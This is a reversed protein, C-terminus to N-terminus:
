MKLEKDDKLICTISEVNIIFYYLFAHYLCSFFFDFYSHHQDHSGYMIHKRTGM